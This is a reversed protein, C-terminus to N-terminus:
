EMEVKEATNRMAALGEQDTPIPAGTAEMAARGEM